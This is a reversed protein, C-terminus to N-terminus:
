SLRIRRSVSLVLGIEAMLFLVSTGGYSIFPLTVGTNPMVGTVVAIHMVTQLGIHVMVGVVLLSGFRDPANNAVLMMRYLLFLFLAILCFAGFLGLEECLISFIMDNSAEPVFGLKQTGNGLGKGFLGGSGIAYLGQLVQYGGEDAYAEPDKWVNIREMQYPELLGMEVIKDSFILVAAVATIVLVAFVIFPWKRRSSLFLMYLGIAGIIIGSSLNNILVLGAAVGVLILVAVFWIWEDVRKALRALMWAMMLIVTLKVIEAGQISQDFPLKLWRKKGNLELGLSTWNILGMVVVGVLYGPIAFFQWFHYDILSLGIMAATGLVYWIAQQRLYYTDPLGKVRASYYSASYVMILGFCCLFLVVFLMSYDYLSREKRLLASRTEKGQTRDSM